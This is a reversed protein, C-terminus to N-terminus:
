EKYQQAHILNGTYDEQGPISIRTAKTQYGHTFVVKDFSLTEAVGNATVTDVLWTQDNVDRHVKAVDTGLRIDKLLDFHEAYSQM